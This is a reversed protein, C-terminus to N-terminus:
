SSCKEEIISALDYGLRECPAGFANQFDKLHNEAFFQYDSLSRKGGVFRGGHAEFAEARAPSYFMGPIRNAVEEREIASMWKKSGFLSGREIELSSWGLSLSENLKSLEGSCDKLLDEFRVQALNDSYAQADRWSEYHNTWGGDLRDPRIEYQKMRASSIFNSFFNRLQQPQSIDVGHIRNHSLRSMMCDFPNRVLLIVVDAKHAAHNGEWYPMHTKVFSRNGEGILEPWDTSKGTEPNHKKVARSNM